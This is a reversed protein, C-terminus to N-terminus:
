SNKDAASKDVVMILNGAPDRFSTFDDAESNRMLGTVEVGQIGAQSFRQRAESISSIM